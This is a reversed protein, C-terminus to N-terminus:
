IATHKKRLRKLERKLEDTLRAKIKKLRRRMEEAYVESVFRERLADLDTRATDMRFFAAQTEREFATQTGRKGVKCRLAYQTVLNRGTRRLRSPKCHADMLAALEKEAARHMKWLSTQKIGNEVKARAVKAAERSMAQLRIHLEMQAVLGGDAWAWGPLCLLLILLRMVIKDAEEDVM